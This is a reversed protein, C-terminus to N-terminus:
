VKIIRYFVLICREPPNLLFRRNPSAVLFDPTATSNKIRTAECVLPTGDDYGPHTAVITAAAARTASAGPAIMVAVVIPVATVIVSFM